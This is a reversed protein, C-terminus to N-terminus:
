PNFLAKFDGDFESLFRRVDLVDDAGVRPAHQFREAEDPVFDTLAIQLSEKVLAAVLSQSRCRSCTLSLFWLDEQHGLVGVNAEDYPQQCSGCRGVTSAVVRKILQETAGEGM